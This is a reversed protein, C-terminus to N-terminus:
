NLTVTLSTNVGAGAMTARISKFPLYLSFAGAATVTLANGQLDRALTAYTSGDNSVQFTISAGDPTGSVVFGTPAGTPKGPLTAAASTGDTTQASFLTIM